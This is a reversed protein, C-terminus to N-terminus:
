NRNMRKRFDAGSESGGVWLKMIDINAPKPRPQNKIANVTNKFGQRIDIGLQQYGSDQVVTVTELAGRSNVMSREILAKKADPYVIDKSNLYTIRPQGTGVELSGDEREILEAKGGDDVWALGEYSDGLNKGKFFRPLPTAIAVALQAAGLAADIAIKFPDTLDQSIAKATNLIISFIAFQKDFAAQKTKEQKAQQDLVKQQAANRKAAENLKKEKDAQTLASQNILDIERQYRDELALKEDEIANLRRSFGADGLGQAQQFLNQSQDVFDSFDQIRLEMEEKSIGRRKDSQEKQNDTLRKEGDIQKDVTAKAEAVIKKQVVIQGGIRNKEEASTALAFRAKLDNLKIQEAILNPGAGKVLSLEAKLQRETNELVTLTYEDDLKKRHRDYADLSIKKSLLSDNLAIVDASYQSSSSLDIKSFLRSLEDLSEGQLEKRKELELGLNDTIRKNTDINLQLLKNEYEKDRQLKEEPTLFQYEDKKKQLAFDKEIIARQANSFDTIAALRDTLSLEVDKSLEDYQTAQQQKELDYVSKLAEARRIAFEKEIDYIKAQSEKVIAERQKATLRASAVQADASSNIRLVQAASLGPQSLEISRIANIKAIKENEANLQYATERNIQAKLAEFDHKRVALSNAGIEVAARKNREAIDAQTSITNEAAEKAAERNEKAVDAIFDLTTNKRQNSLSQVTTASQLLQNLPLELNDVLSKFENPLIAFDKSAKFQSIEHLTATLKDVDKADETSLKGINLKSLGAVDNGAINKIDKLSNGLSTFTQIQENVVSLTKQGSAETAKEQLFLGDRVAKNVDEVSAGKRKLEAIVEDTNQKIATTNQALAENQYKLESTLSATSRKARDEASEYHFLEKAADSIPDIALAFVGAIGLGPLINAIKKVASYLGNLAAGTGKTAQVVADKYAGVNRQEKGMRSDESKLAADLVQIDAALEKGFASGKEETSLQRLLNRSIELRANLQDYSGEAAQLYKTQLKVTQTVDSLAVKLSTQEQVLAVTDGTGAKLEAGIEALRQKYGIGQAINAELTGTYQQLPIIVAEVEAANEALAVSAEKQAIAFATAENAAEAERQELESVAIGTANLTRQREKEVEDLNDSSDINTTVSLKTVNKAV